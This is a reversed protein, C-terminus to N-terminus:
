PNIEILRGANLLKAESLRPGILQLSTIPNTHGQAPMKVPLALAPNGAFNVGVTNQMNFVRWEFVVNSGWFPMKPPLDQLTPLAIFDVQKFVQRLARQWESKRSLAAQYDGNYDLEGSLIVLKTLLSVGKQNTYKQDNLWADALAVTKGDKEAQKWQAQFKSNLKLIKFGTVALLDDIAKDIEPATGELYLRGITIHRALPKDAVAQKYQTDFNRQLLDMGQVLHKLNRAMPGITDLHKPSIPFVGKISVLGFTTKLGYIGSCAAPVRISGATDTGFAVDTMGTAVAVGSGSSSGGAIVENKGDLRSRPSGFFSNEGSATVAFETLNTKGVIWVNRERALTLCSADMTAPSSNKALYQSGASTVQGKMDINDKVALRLAQSGVPPSRYSIFAHERSRALQRRQHSSSCSVYFITLLVGCVCPKFIRHLRLIM